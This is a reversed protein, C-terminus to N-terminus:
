HEAEESSDVYRPINLNYGNSRIEERSVTRYYGPITARNVFTDTIRRIDSARLKNNKGEKIYGQSADIM